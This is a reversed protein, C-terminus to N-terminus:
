VLIHAGKDLSDMPFDPLALAVSEPSSLAFAASVLQTLKSESVQPFKTKLLSM